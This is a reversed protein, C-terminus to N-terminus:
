LWWQRAYQCGQRRRGSDPPISTLGANFWHAPSLFFSAQADVKQQHTLPGGYSRLMEGVLFAFGWSGQSAYFCGYGLTFGLDASVRCFCLDGTHIHQCLGFGKLCSVGLCFCLCM